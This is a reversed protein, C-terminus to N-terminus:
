IYDYINNVIDRIDLLVELMLRDPVSADAPLKQIVDVVENLDISHARTIRTETTVDDMEKEIEERPRM